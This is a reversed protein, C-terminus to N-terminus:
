TSSAGPNQHSRHGLAFDIAEIDVKLKVLDRIHEHDGSVAADVATPWVKAQLVERIALLQAGVAADNPAVSPSKLDAIAKGAEDDELLAASDANALLRVQNGEVKDVIGLCVGDAGIVEMHGKIQSPDTM